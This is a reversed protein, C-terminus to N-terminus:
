RFAVSGGQGRASHPLPAEYHDANWLAVAEQRTSRAETELGCCAIYVRENFVAHLTKPRKGCKPCTKPDTAADKMFAKKLHGRGGYRMLMRVVIGIKQCYKQNLEGWASAVPSDRM